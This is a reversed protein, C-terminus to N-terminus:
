RFRKFEENKIRRQKQLTRLKKDRNEARRIEDLACNAKFRWFDDDDGYNKEEYEKIIEKVFWFKSAIKYRKKTM